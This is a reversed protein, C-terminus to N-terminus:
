SIFAVHTLRRHHADAPSQWCITITVQFAGDANNTVVVQQRASGEVSSGPLGKAGTIRAIWDSVVPNASASDSFKCAKPEGAKKHTFSVLSDRLTDANTRDAAMWMQGVLESAYSAAESRYQADSQASIASAGMAVIGLIGFAFILIAILAELLFVGRQQHCSTFPKITNM